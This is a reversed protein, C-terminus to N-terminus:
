AGASKQLEARKERVLRNIYAIVLSNAGVKSDELKGDLAEASIREIAADVRASIADLEGLSTANKISYSIEPVSALLPAEPPSPRLMHWIALLASYLAGLIIPGTYLWDGYREMLTQEEGDFFEKAGKHVPIIADKDTSAAKILAAVPADPTFRQRNEFIFRTLETAIDSRVSQDTVLYTTVLLTTVNEPPVPPSGGFAGSSIEGQEFEPAASEIAEADDISVFSMSKRTLRRVSAWRESLAGSKTTPIIFLLADIKKANIAAAIEAVVPPIDVSAFEGHYRQRMWTMLRAYSGPPGVLGLTKDALERFNEIKASKPAVIAIPDSHLIAISRVRDPVDGLNRIVALQAQGKKLRELSEIPGPTQEISLRIHSGDAALARAMSAILDADDFSPPGVAVTLIVPRYYFHWVWAALGVISALCLVGITRRLGASFKM